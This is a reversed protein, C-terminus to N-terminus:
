KFFYNFKSMIESLLQLITFLIGPFGESLNALHLCLRIKKRQRKFHKKKGQAM